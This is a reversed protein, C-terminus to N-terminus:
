IPETDYGFIYLLPPSLLSDAFSLQKYNIIHIEQRVVSLGLSTSIPISFISVVFFETTKLISDQIAPFIVNKRYGKEHVSM